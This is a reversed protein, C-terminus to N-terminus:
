KTFQDMYMIRKKQELYEYEFFPLLNDSAEHERMKMDIYESAKSNGTRLYIGVISWWTHLGKNFSRFAEVGLKDKSWLEQRKAATKKHSSILDDIIFNAYVDAVVTDRFLSDHKQLDNVLYRPFVLLLLILVLGISLLSQKFYKKKILEHVRMRVKERAMIATHLPAIFGM